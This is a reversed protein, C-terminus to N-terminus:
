MRRATTGSEAIEEVKCSEAAEAAERAEYLGLVKEATAGWTFEAAHRAANRGFEARKEDDLLLEGIAQAFAQPALSEVITGTHGARIVEPLGGASSAIVPTGSAQAELAVLGFSESRSPVVVLDASRYHHALDRQPVPEKFDVLEALGSRITLQRLSELEAEGNPGSPGGVVALKVRGALHPDKQLEALASIGIDIGKLPQIRGAIVLTFDGDRNRVGLRSDAAGRAQPTFIATDVGPAIVSIRRSCAGYHNMLMSAEAETSAVIHDAADVARREGLLRHRPEPLDGTALTSNKAQGLSHFTMVHPVGLRGALAKGARASMWYHSHVADYSVSRAELAEGVGAIFAPSLLPLRDKEVVDAEGAEVHFIRVGPAAMVVPSNLSSAKRTFIDSQIGRRALANALSMVYVNLGGSDGTGPQELPCTHMSIVAVRQVAM